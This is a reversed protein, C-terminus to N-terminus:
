GSGNSQLASSRNPTNVVGTGCQPRKPGDDQHHGGRHQQAASDGIGGPRGETKSTAGFVDGDRVVGVQVGKRESRGGPNAGGAEGVVDADHVLINGARAVAPIDMGGPAVQECPIESVACVLNEFHARVTLAQVAAENGVALPMVDREGDAGVAPFEIHVGDLLIRERPGTGGAGAGGRLLHLDAVIGPRQRKVGGTEAAVHGPHRQPVGCFCGGLNRHEHRARSWGSVFGIEEGGPIEGFAGARCGKVGAGGTMVACEVMGDCPRAVGDADRATKCDRREHGAEGLQTEDEGGAGGGVGDGHVIPQRGAVPQGSVLAHRGVGVGPGDGHHEGTQRGGAGHM